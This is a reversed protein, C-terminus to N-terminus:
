KLQKTFASHLIQSASTWSPTGVNINQILYDTEKMTNTQKVENLLTDVYQTLIVNKPKDNHLNETNKTSSASFTISTSYQSTLVLNKEDFDETAHFAADMARFSSVMTDTSNSAAKLLAHHENSPLLYLHSLLKEENKNQGKKQKSVATELAKVSNKILMELHQRKTTDTEESSRRLAVRLRRRLLPLIHGGRNNSISTLENNSKKNIKTTLLSSSTEDKEDVEKPSSIQETRPHYLPSSAYHPSGFIPWSGTYGSGNEDANLGAFLRFPGYAYSPLFESRSSEKKENLDYGEKNKSRLNSLFSELSDCTLLLSEIFNNENSSENINRHIHLYNNEVPPLGLLIAVDQYSNAGETMPLESTSLLFLEVAVTQWNAEDIEKFSNVSTLNSVKESSGISTSNTFSATISTNSAMEFQQLVVNVIAAILDRSALQAFSLPGDNVFENSVNSDNVELKDEKSIALANKFTPSDNNHDELELTDSTSSAKSSGFLRGRLIEMIQRGLALHGMVSYRRVLDELARTSTILHTSSKNNESRAKANRMSAELRRLEEAPITFNNLSVIRAAFYMLANSINNADDPAIKYVEKTYLGLARANALLQLAPFVIDVAHGRHKSSQIIPILFDNAHILPSGLRLFLKTAAFAADPLGCRAFALIFTRALSSPFPYIQVEDQSCKQLTLSPLCKSFQLFPHLITNSELNWGCIHYPLIFHTLVYYITKSDQIRGSADIISAYFHANQFIKDSHISDTPFSVHELTDTMENLKSVIYSSSAKVDMTLFFDNVPNNEQIKTFPNGIFSSSNINVQVM